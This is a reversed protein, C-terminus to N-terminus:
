WGGWRAALAALVAIGATETRLVRPGLGLPTFGREAAADEEATSLGGEPGVLMTVRGKPPQTPLSAFAISARPSLMLRLEGDAPAAPMTDLWVSLERLPEVEPLRNRGCQECSARVIGEWHAQRRAAREGSLRVVSRATTLPVFGAAGLEVAKEILWDMKDGGAIGQALTLRYPPEAEVDAFEGVRVMASRREIEILEASYQGGNGNFIALSDGPQLRLVQVHRAVDDPLAVVDGPQYRSAVFFRPM